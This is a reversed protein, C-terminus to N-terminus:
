HGRLASQRGAVAATARRAMTGALVASCTSTTVLSRLAREIEWHDRLRLAETLDARATPTDELCLARTGSQHLCWAEAARDGVAAGGRAGMGANRGLGGLAGERGAPRGRVGSACRGKGM